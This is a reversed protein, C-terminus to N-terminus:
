PARCVFDHGTGCPEDNFGGFDNRVNVCHENNQFHDPEGPAFGDYDVPTGDIWQFTGPSSQEDLGIWYQDINRALAVQEMEDYLQQSHISLLDHGGFRSQCLSEANNYDTGDTCISISLTPENILAPTICNGCSDHITGDLDDCDRTTTAAPALFEVLHGDTCFLDRVDSTFGDGDFDEAGGILAGADSNNDDCDSGLACGKGRGDGDLDVCPLGADVPLPAPECLFSLQRACNTDNWTGNTMEVCNEIGGANDPEGSSFEQVDEPSGDIWVLTSTGATKRELGNWVHLGSNFFANRVADLDNKDHFTALRYGRKECETEADPQTRPTLCLLRPNKAALGVRLPICACVDDNDVVGDCDNDLGDCEEIHGPHIRPDNDNCDFKPGADCGPAAGIVGDGDRDVCAGADVRTGADVVGGDVSAGADVIAGADVSAGADVMAGADVSAGADVIAGADVDRPGADDGNTVKACSGDVCAESAPCDHTSTCALDFASPCQCAGGCAVLAAIVACAVDASRSAASM